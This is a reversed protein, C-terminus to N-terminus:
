LQVVYLLKVFAFVSLLPTKIGNQDLSLTLIINIHNKKVRTHQWEFSLERSSCSGRKTLGM